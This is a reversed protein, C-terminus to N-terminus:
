EISNERGFKKYDELQQTLRSIENSLIKQGEQTIIYSRKRGEVATERILNNKEFEGLITYLTGSGVSIRGETMNQIKDMIDIGCYEEELSLLIYFMQETLTEFKKRAM